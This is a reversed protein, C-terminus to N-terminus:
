IFGYESCKWGVKKNLGYIDYAVAYAHEIWLGPKREVVDAPHLRRIENALESLVYECETFEKQYWECIELADSHKVYVESM